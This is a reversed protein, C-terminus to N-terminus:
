IMRESYTGGNDSAFHKADAIHKFEYGREQRIARDRWGGRDYQLNESGYTDEVASVERHKTEVFHIFKIARNPTM